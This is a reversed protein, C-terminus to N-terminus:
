AEEAQSAKDGREFTVIAKRISRANQCLWPILLALIIWAAARIYEDPTPANFTLAPPVLLLNRMLPFALALLLAHDAGMVIATLVVTVGFAITPTPAEFLMSLGWALPVAVGFIPVVWWLSPRERRCVKRPEPVAEFVRLCAITEDDHFPTLMLTNGELCDHVGELLLEVEGTGHCAAVHCRERETIRDHYLDVSKIFEFRQGVQFAV